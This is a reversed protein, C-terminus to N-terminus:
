NVPLHVTFATGKGLESRISLRGNHRTLIHKVIALGLGTGKQARSAEADIRYFRETVRPIHEEAIGPGFDRVTVDIAPEPMEAGSAATVVVRGGSRGYKCANELLNEFVQFLEDRDGPVELRGASFDREVVIGNDRALPALSDIVSELVERLDVKAGSRRLPRMELRSLSLLDDILRSMRATQNQMIELFQARAAPDDRAAGRLTEIFGAISALPTRMEHSANAIFDARMRDIRRAESQDKFMLVFLGTDHGVAAATVRYVSEVPLKEVLDIAASAVAGTLIEDLVVQMEPARFKLPLSLGPALPGFTAAAAANAYVIAASRDFVILPDPVAAALYEGNLRRLEPIEATGAGSVGMPAPRDPVLAAAVLLLLALPLVYVAHDAFAYVAIVGAVGALLPWRGRRLREAVGSAARRGQGSTEVM